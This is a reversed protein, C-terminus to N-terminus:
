RAQRGRALIGLARGIPGAPGILGAAGVHARRERAKTSVSGGGKLGSVALAMKEFRPVSEPELVFCTAAASPSGIPLETSLPRMLLLAPTRAIAPGERRYQLAGRLASRWPNPTMNDAIHAPNCHQRATQHPSMHAFLNASRTRGSSRLAVARVRALHM